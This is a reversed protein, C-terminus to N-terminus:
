RYLLVSHPCKPVRKCMVVDTGHPSVSPKLATMDAM